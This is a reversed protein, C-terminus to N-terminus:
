SLLFLLFVKIQFLTCFLVIKQNGFSVGRRAYFDLTSTAGKRTVMHAVRGSEILCLKWQPPGLEFFDVNDDSNVVVFRFWM